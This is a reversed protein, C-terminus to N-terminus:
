PRGKLLIPLVGTLAVDSVFADALARVNDRAIVGGFGLVFVGAARAAVDTSGDGVLAVQGHQSVLRGCISAKGDAKTLPSTDEYGLYSGDAGLRVDVAHVNGAPVGLRAALPLISPRLGGSVIHTDIGAARLADFTERAGPSMTSIYLEALWDLADRDPRVLDMRRGYIQDITLRGDMAMTTLPEIEEFCGARRALEDIGEISSLTSDCDFAVADFPGVRLKTTM